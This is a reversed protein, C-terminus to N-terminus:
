GYGLEKSPATARDPDFMKLGFTQLLLLGAYIPNLLLYRKWLRRPEHILRFLFELGSKQLATPAQPQTGAHFEFGAGVAIMPMQLTDRGEYVWVEQRPCGLGVFVMAAGSRRIEEVVRTREEANLCRFKSPQAGAILLGPIRATLREEMAKIVRLTSGYLYVPLHKEAARICLKLMLTPGYVRDSLRADHLWNLAWRVPQGDPLVLDLHNLRYRHVSDLVGTMIGHVALASVAMTRKFEAAEIISSVAFEYDVADVLVGLINKKTL